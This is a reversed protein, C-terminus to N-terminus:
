FSRIHQLAMWACKGFFIKAENLFITRNNDDVIKNQCCEDFNGSLAITEMMAETMQSFVNGFNDDLDQDKNFTSTAEKFADEMAQALRKARDKAKSQNMFNPAPERIELMTGDLLEKKKQQYEDTGYNDTKGLISYIDLANKVDSQNKVKYKLFIYIGFRRGGKEAAVHGCSDSWKPESSGGICEVVSKLYVMGKNM